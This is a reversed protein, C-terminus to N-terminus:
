RWPFEKEFKELTFIESEKFNYRVSTATINSCPDLCYYQDSRTGLYDCINRGGLSELIQIVENGRTPHGQIAIKM